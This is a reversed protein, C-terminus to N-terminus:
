GRLKSEVFVITSRPTAFTEATVEDDCITISFTAELYSLFEIMEISDILDRLPADLLDRDSPVAPRPGTRLYEVILHEPNRM